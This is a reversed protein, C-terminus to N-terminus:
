GPWSSAPSGYPDFRHRLSFCDAPPLAFSPNSSSLYVPHALPCLLAAVSPWWPSFSSHSICLLLFRCSSSIPSNTVLPWPPSGLSLFSYRSTPEMDQTLNLEQRPAWPEGIVMLSSVGCPSFCQCECERDTELFSQGIVLKCGCFFLSM